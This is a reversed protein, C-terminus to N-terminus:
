SVTEPAFFREAEAYAEPTGIDLFRGETQYGYLGRGVWGSFIERELSIARNEPITQIFSRTLLYIGANVWGPDGRSSKEEFSLVAGDTSVRVQGYRMSDAMKVLALTVEARHGCHWDLFANFNIDCFSDGNMVLVSASNLLPLALRLAGATGLPSAEQSYIIGLKGYSDGFRDRIQEGLYGTCLVVTRLGSVALQDLLYGLFPCGGIEALVKPRDKVVSRLRTGLGGALIAATVEVM